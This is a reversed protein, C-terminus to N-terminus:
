QASGISIAVLSGLRFPQTREARLLEAHDADTRHAQYGVRGSEPV